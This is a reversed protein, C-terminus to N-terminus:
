YGALDGIGENQLIDRQAKSSRINKRGNELQQLSGPEVGLPCIVKWAKNWQMLGLVQRLQCDHRM